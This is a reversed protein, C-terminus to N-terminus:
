LVPDKVFVVNFKDLFGGKTNEALLLSADDDSLVPDSFFRGGSRGTARIILPNSGARSNSKAGALSTAYSVIGRDLVTDPSVHVTGWVESGDPRRIRPSMCRELKYGSADIICGTYPKDPASPKVEVSTTVKVTRDPKLVVKVNTEVTTEGPKEEPPKPGEKLFIQGPGNNAFMPARVEVVVITSGEVKEEWSKGIQVNKVFGDIKQKITADAMFDKGTAEYDITTGDIAMLLNAIAAMEAYKKAKLKARARNPEEQPSPMAGDGTAIYVLNTWDIKSNEGINQVSPQEGLAPAAIAVLLALAALAVGIRSM